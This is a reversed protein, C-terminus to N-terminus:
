NFDRRRQKRVIIRNSSHRLRESPPQRSKVAMAFLLAAIATGMTRYTMFVHIYSHNMTAAYWAFPVVFVVIFPAMYILLDRAKPQEKIIFLRVAYFIVTLFVPIFSKKATYPATLDRAMESLEIREERVVSSSRESITGLADAIANNDLVISAIVWKAAWMGVYGAGWAVLGFLAIQIATKLQQERGTNGITALLTAMPLGYSATPFTLFDSYSTLMGTLLFLVVITTISVAHGENDKGCISVVCLTSVLMVFTISWYELGFPLAYAYIALLFALLAPILHQHNKRALQACIALVLAIEVVLWIYNIQRINLGIALLPKLWLLYGHWYRTYAVPEDSYQGEHVFDYLSTAPNPSTSLRMARMSDWIPDETLPFIAMGVMLPDTFYDLITGQDGTLSPYLPEDYYYDASEVAAEHMTEVPISYAAVILVFGLLLCSVFATFSAILIRLGSPM